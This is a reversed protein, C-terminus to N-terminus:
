VIKKFPFGVAKFFALAEKKNKATTQITVSFGFIDRAEEDATQPFIIHERVGITMNGMNDISKEDYGKFDRIRPMAVNILMNLFDFMKQGRLTVTHGVIEGQRVKFSAISKKAGRPACKQGTIKALRDAILEDRKKDRLRGTGTNIVVKALRPLAMPNKEDLEKELVPVAKKIKDKLIDMNKSKKEVVM